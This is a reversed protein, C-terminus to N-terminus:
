GPLAEGSLAFLWLVVSLIVMAWTIAGLFLRTSLSPPPPSGGPDVIADDSLSHRAQSWIAPVLVLLASVVVIPLAPVTFLTAASDSALNLGIPLAVGLLGAVVFMWARPRVRALSRLFTPMLVAGVIVVVFMSITPLDVRVAEGQVLPLASVTFGILGLVGLGARLGVANVAPQPLAALRLEAAYSKPRGFCEEASMGADALFERASALADGIDRGPVGLLRLEITFEDFWTADDMAAATADDSHIGAGANDPDHPDSTMM